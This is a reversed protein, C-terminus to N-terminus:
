KIISSKTMNVEKDSDPHFLAGNMLFLSLMASLFNIKKKFDNNKQNFM